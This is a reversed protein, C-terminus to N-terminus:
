SSLWQGVWPRPQTLPPDQLTSVKAEWEEIEQTDETPLDMLSFLSLVHRSSCGM